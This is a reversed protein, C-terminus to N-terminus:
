PTASAAPAPSATPSAAPPSGAPTGTAASNPDATALMDKQIASQETIQGNYTKGLTSFASGDAPKKFTLHQAANVSWNGYSKELYALMEDGTKLSERQLDRLKM